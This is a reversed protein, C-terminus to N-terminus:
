TFFLLIKFSSVNSTKPAPPAAALSLCSASFKRELSWRAVGVGGGDGVPSPPRQVLSLPPSNKYFNDFRVPKRPERPEQTGFSNLIFSLSLKLSTEPISELDQAGYIKWGCLSKTLFTFLLLWGLAKFPDFNCTFM